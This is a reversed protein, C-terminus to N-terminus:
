GGTPTILIEAETPPILIATDPTPTMEPTATLINPRVLERNIYCLIGEVIGQALIDPKETLVTYDDRMFGLEIIAAPTLPHIERFSHYDTMDITTEFRRVLGSIPEYYAAVCEALRTDEGDAARSAAKAVIFGSAGGVFEACTNAHISVLAEAQYNDLRADFEELLEARYGQRRLEEVVRSAVSFNIENENPADPKDPCVAGPDYSAQLGPGSHGSVVGITRLWNPTQMATPIATPAQGTALASQLSRRMEPRLFDSNTWWSLITAMLGASVIVVFFTRVLGGIIGVNRVRRKQQRRKVRQVRQAEMMVQQHREEDTLPRRPRAPPADSAMREAANSEADTREGGGDAQTDPSHPAVPPTVSEPSTTSTEARARRSRADVRAPQGASEPEQGSQDSAPPTSAPPHSSPSQHRIIPPKNARNTGDKPSQNAAARRMMEMFIVSAPLEEPEEPQHSADDRKVGGSDGDSDRGSSGSSSGNGGSDGGDNDHGSRKIEDDAM